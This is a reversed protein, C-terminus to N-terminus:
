DNLTELRKEIEDGLWKVVVKVMEAQYEIAEILEAKLAKVDENAAERGNRENIVYERIERASRECNAVSNRAQERKETLWELSQDELEVEQALVQMIRKYDEQTLEM